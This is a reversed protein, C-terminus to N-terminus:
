LEFAICRPLFKESGDKACKEIATVTNPTHTHLKIEIRNNVTALLIYMKFLYM